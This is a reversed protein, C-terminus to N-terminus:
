RGYLYLKSEIAVEPEGNTDEVTYINGEANRKYQNIVVYLRGNEQSRGIQIAYIDKRWKNGVYVKIRNGSSNSKIIFKSKKRM